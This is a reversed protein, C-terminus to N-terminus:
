GGRRAVACRWCGSRRTITPIPRSSRSRAATADALWLETVNEDKDFDPKTVLFAISRGDPSVRPSSVGVMKRAIELTFRTEAALATASLTLLALSAIALPLRSRM